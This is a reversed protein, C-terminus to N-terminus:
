VVPQLYGGEVQVEIAVDAGRHRLMGIETWTANAAPVHGLALGMAKVLVDATEVTVADRGVRAAAATNIRGIAALLADVICDVSVILHPVTRSSRPPARAITACCPM